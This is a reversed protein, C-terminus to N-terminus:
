IGIPACYLLTTQDHEKQKSYFILCNRLSLDSNDLNNTVVLYNITVLRSTVFITSNAPTFQKPWSPTWVVSASLNVALLSLDCCAIYMPVFCSRIYNPM